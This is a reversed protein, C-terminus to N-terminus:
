ERTVHWLWGRGAGGIFFGGRSGDPLMQEHRQCAYVVSELQLASLCEVLQDHAQLLVCRLPAVTTPDCIYRCPPLAPWFLSWVPAPIAGQWKLGAARLVAAWGLWLADPPCCGGGAPAHWTRLCTCPPRLRACTGPLCAGTVKLRYSIDPPEVAALSATEVVADPHPAGYDLKAPKYEQM